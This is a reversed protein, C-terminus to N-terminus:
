SVCAQRRPELAQQLDNLVDEENEPYIFSAFAMKDFLEVYWPQNPRIKARKSKKVELMAWKDGYLILMDPVGPLFEADNKLIVCGPFMLALRDKLKAKYANEDM